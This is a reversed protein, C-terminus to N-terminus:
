FGTFILIVSKKERQGGKKRQPSTISKGRTVIEKEDAISTNVGLLSSLTRTWFEHPKILLIQTSPLQFFSRHIPNFIKKNKVLLKGGEELIKNRTYDPNGPFPSDWTLM